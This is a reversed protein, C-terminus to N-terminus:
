RLMFDRGVANPENHFLDHEGGAIQALNPLDVFQQGAMFQFDDRLRGELNGLRFLGAEGEHLVGDELGAVGRGM